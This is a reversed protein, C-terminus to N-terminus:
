TDLPEVAGDPDNIGNPKRRMKSRVACYHEHDEYHNVTHRMVLLRAGMCWYVDGTRGAGSVPDCDM